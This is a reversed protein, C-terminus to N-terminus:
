AAARISVDIIETTLTTVADPRTILPEAWAVFSEVTWTVDPTDLMLLQRCLKDLEKLHEDIDDNIVGPATRLMGTVTVLDEYDRAAKQRLKTAESAWSALATQLSGESPNHTLAAQAISWFRLAALMFLVSSAQFALAKSLAPLEWTAVGVDAVNVPTPILHHAKVEMESESGFLVVM